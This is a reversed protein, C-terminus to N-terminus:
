NYETHVHIYSDINKIYERHITNGSRDGYVVQIRKPFDGFIEIEKIERERLVVVEDCYINENDFVILNHAVNRSCNEIEISLKESEHRYNRVYIDPFDERRQKDIEVM